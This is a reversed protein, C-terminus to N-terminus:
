EQSGKGVNFDRQKAKNLELKLNDLRRILQNCENVKSSDRWRWTKKDLYADEIYRIEECTEKINNEIEEVSRKTM